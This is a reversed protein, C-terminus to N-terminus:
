PLKVISNPKSIVISDADTEANMTQSQNLASSNPLHTSRAIKKVSDAAESMYM